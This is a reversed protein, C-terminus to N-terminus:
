QSVKCGANHARQQVLYSLDFFYMHILAFATSKPIPFPFLNGVTNFSILSIKSISMSNIHYPLLMTKNFFFSIFSSVLQNVIHSIERGVIFGITGFNLYKLSQEQNIIQRLAAM